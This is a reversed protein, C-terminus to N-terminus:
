TEAVDFTATLPLHDSAVLAQRSRWLRTKVLSLPAEFYLHDLTMLPILGPFTKPFRWVHQPRFTQFENRLLKTTLGRTWENLDGLVLRPHNSEPQTLVSEGLLRRAQHRREMYGTGLHINFVRLIQGYSLALDTQLVGREERKRHTLDHNRWEAIPLRTLTMNGYAGGYLPRNNGFVWTYEPLGMAIQEAQNFRGPGDPAHVVEQLCIVDADLQQIVELVRAPSIKGDLGRCKHVNYTAVRLQQNTEM